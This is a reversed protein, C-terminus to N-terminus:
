IGPCIRLGYHDHHKRSAVVGLQTKNKLPNERAPRFSCPAVHALLLSDRDLVMEVSSGRVWSRQFLCPVSSFLGMTPGGNRNWKIM